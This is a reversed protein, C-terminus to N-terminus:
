RETKFINYDPDEFPNSPKAKKRYKSKFGLGMALTVAGDIRLRSMKKSFKMGEQDDEITQANLVCSTLLPHNPHKITEDLIAAEFARIAPTMDKTGQGWPVLWLGSGSFEEGTYTEIDYDEFLPTVYQMGWRDYVLARVDYKDILERVKLVIDRPRVTKGKSTLLHGQQVFLDYRVRDRNSHNDIHVFPKWFYQDVRTPHDDLTVATLSTLDTHAAMDLNLVVPTKNPIPYMPLDDIKDVEADYACLKWEAATILSDTLAVRQNLYRRRFNREKTPLRKAEAAKSAIGRSDKWTALAPNAKLWQEPDDLACDEDAAHLHCVLTPDEGLLGDDIMLSLPHQPDDNQTSIIIALPSTVLQQGDIMTDFLTDTVAAEGFEDYVFMTPGLGHKTKAEASLAKYKSGRAITDGRKVSIIGKSEGIVLYSALMPEMRIMKAIMDYIVRAQGNDNACTYLQGNTVAEPGILHALILGAVLLSKANKRAVSLIATRVVRQGDDFQPEYIDRIWAEMWPDVQFPKGIAPGDIIPLCEMFKIIRDARGVNRFIAQAPGDILRGAEEDKVLM